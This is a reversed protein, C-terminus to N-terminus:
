CRSLNKIEKSNKNALYVVKNDKDLILEISSVDKVSIQGDTSAKSCSVTPISVSNVAYYFCYEKNEDM